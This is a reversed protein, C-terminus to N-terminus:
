LERNGDAHGLPTHPAQHHPLDGSEQSKVSKSKGTIGPLALSALVLSALVLSVRPNGSIPAPPLIAAGIADVSLPTRRLSNTSVIRFRGYGDSIMSDIADGM